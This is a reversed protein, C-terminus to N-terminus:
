GDLFMWHKPNKLFYKWSVDWFFGFSFVVRHFSSKAPHLVVPASNCQWTTCQQDEVKENQAKSSCTAQMGHRLPDQEEGKHDRWSCQKQRQAKRKQLQCVVAKIGSSHGKDEDRRASHQVLLICCFISFVHCHLPEFTFDWPHKNLCQRLQLETVVKGWIKEIATSGGM